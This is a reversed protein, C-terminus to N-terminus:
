SKLKTVLNVKFGCFAFRQTSGAGRGQRASQSLYLDEREWTAHPKGASRSDLLKGLCFFIPKTRGM